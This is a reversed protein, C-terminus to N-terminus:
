AEEEFPVSSLLGAIQRWVAVPLTVIAVTPLAPGRQRALRVTLSDGNQRAAVIYDAVIDPVHNM